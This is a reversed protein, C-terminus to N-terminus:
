VIFSPPFGTEAGSRGGPIQCTVQAHVRAELLYSFVNRLIQKKTEQPPTVCLGTPVDVVLQDVTGAGSSLSSSQPSPPPILVPLLFM